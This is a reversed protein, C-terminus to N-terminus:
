FVNALLAEALPGANKNDRGGLSSWHGTRGGRERARAHKERGGPTRASKRESARERARPSSQAVAAAARRWNSLDEKPGEGAVLV